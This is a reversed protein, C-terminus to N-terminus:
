NKRGRTDRGSKSLKKSRSDNTISNPSLKIPISDNEVELAINNEILIDAEKNEIEYYQGAHCLTLQGRIDLVQNKNFYLKKNM